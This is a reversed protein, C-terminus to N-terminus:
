KHDPLEMGLIRIAQDYISKHGPLEMGLICIALPSAYQRNCRNLSSINYFRTHSFTPWWSASINAMRWQLSWVCYHLVHTNCLMFYRKEALYKPFRDTTRVCVKFAYFNGCCFPSIWMFNDSRSHYLRIFCARQLKAGVDIGMSAFLM